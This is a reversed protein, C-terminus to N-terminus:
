PKGANLVSEYPSMPLIGKYYGPMSDHPAQLRKEALNNATGVPFSGEPQRQGTPYDTLVELVEDITKIAYVHFKGQRIADVVDERLM